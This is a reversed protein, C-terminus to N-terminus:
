SYQQLLEGEGRSGGHNKGHVKQGATVLQTNFLEVSNWALSVDSNRSVNYTCVVLVIKQM